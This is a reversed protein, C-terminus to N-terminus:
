HMAEVAGLVRAMVSPHHSYTTLFNGWWRPCQMSRLVGHVDAGGVEEHSCEAISALAKLRVTSSTYCWQWVSM